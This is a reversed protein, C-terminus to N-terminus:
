NRINTQGFADPGETIRTDTQRDLIPGIPRSVDCDRAQNFRRIIGCFTKAGEAFWNALATYNLGVYELFYSSISM